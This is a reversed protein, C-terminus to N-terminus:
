KVNDWCGGVIKKGLLVRKRANTEAQVKKRIEIIALTKVEEQRGAALSSYNTVKEGSLVRAWITDNRVGPSSDSPSVWRLNKFLVTRGTANDYTLAQIEDSPAM